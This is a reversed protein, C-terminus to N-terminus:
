ELVFHYNDGFRSDWARCGSYSQNEFWMEVGAADAPADLVAPVPVQVTGSTETLMAVQEPGDDFRYHLRINWAEFGYKSGRCDPLRAPDYAVVLQAGSRPAGFQETVWGTKFSLSAGVQVHWDDGYNSDYASCGWVSTNHFWFALDGSDALTFVPPESGQSPSHGGAEFSGVAGDELRHYGTISWAPQGNQEGRCTLLRQDDYAVEVTNGAVLPGGSHVVQWDSTFALHAGPLGPPPGEGERVELPPSESECAVVCISLGLVALRVFSMRRSKDRGADRSLRALGAM